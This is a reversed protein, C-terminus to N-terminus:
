DDNSDQKTVTVIVLRLNRMEYHRCSTPSSAEDREGTDVAHTPATSNTQIKLKFTPKNQM